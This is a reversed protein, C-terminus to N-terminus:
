KNCSNNLFQVISEAVFELKVSELKSAIEEKSLQISESKATYKLALKKQNRNILFTIPILGVLFTNVIMILFSSLDVSNYSSLLPTYLTNLAVIFLMMINIYLIEKGVTWTREDQLKPFWVPIIYLFLSTVFFTIVGYGFIMLSGSTSQLGHLGFPRFVFLFLGVFVGTCLAILLSKKNAERSPYPKKLFSFMSLLVHNPNVTKEEQKVTKKQNVKGRVLSERERASKRKSGPEQEQQNKRTLSLLSNRRLPIGTLASIFMSDQIARRSVKEDPPV